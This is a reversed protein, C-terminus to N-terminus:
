TNRWGEMWTEMWEPYVIETQDRIIGSLLYLFRSLFQKRTRRGDCNYFGLEHNFDEPPYHVYIGSPHSWTEYKWGWGLAEPNEEWLLTFGLDELLDREIM